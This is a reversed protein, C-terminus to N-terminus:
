FLNISNLQKATKQKWYNLNYPHDTMYPWNPNHNIKVSHDYSKIM